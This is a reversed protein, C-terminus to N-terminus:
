RVGGSVPPILAVEDDEELRTSDDVYDANVAASLSSSIHRLGAYDKVLRNKLDAVTSGAPLDVELMRSGVIDRSSAFFLAKIRM